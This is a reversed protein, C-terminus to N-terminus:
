AQGPDGCLAISYSQPGEKSIGAPETRGGAELKALSGCDAAAGLGKWESLVAM